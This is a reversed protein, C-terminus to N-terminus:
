IAKRQQGVGELNLKISWGKAMREKVIRYEEALVPDLTLLRELQNNVIVIPNIGRFKCKVFFNAEESSALSHYDASHLIMHMNKSILIDKSALLCNWIDQDIGFRVDELSILGSDMGKLIAEALWMSHVYETGSGWCDESMFLTFRVLKKLIEEERSVWEGKYFQIEHFLRIAEDYTIFGQYFAGQLNYDIRDACLNPLSQELAPFIEEKPLIEDIQYGYTNLLHGLECRELFDKHTLTQYDIEHNQRNFIWDGVHSFITHSVDHLLGAIQEKLSCNKERLLAFVGLSHDYRTFNERHTTYYAVGYQHIHKLRQLSPSEILELLVPEEVNITGYFTQIPVATLSSYIFCLAIFIKFINLM